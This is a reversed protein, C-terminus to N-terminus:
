RRWSSRAAVSAISAAPPCGKAPEAARSSASVARPPSVVSMEPPGGGEDRGMFRKMVKELVLPATIEENFKVNFWDLLRRVEDPSPLVDPASARTIWELEIGVRHGGNPAFM